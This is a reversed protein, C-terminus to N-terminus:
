IPLFPISRRDTKFNLNLLNIITEPETIFNTIVVQRRDNLVIWLYNYSNWPVRFSRTENIECNYIDNRNFKISKGNKKYEITKDQTDIIVTANYNKLWYSIHLFVSPLGFFLALFLPYLWGLEFSEKRDIYFFFVLSLLVLTYALFKIKNTDKFSFSFTKDTHQPVSESFDDDERHKDVLNLYQEITGRFYLEIFEEAVFGKPNKNFDHSLYFDAVQKGNDYLLYFGKDDKAWISIKKNNNSKFTITPLSSTLERQRVEKLQDDFPFKHFAKVAGALDVQGMEEVQDTFFNVKQVNYTFTIKQM